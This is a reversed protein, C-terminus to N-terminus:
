WRLRAVFGKPGVAWATRNGALAVDNLNQTGEAIWRKGRLKMFAGVPGVVWMGPTASTEAPKSPIFAISSFFLSSPAAPGAIAQWTQGGDSTRIITPIPSNGPNAYDGGVAVGHHADRFAISFLGSSANPPRVPTEAVKWTEGADNSRLVRAVSAGGTVFWINKEGQLAICSNSAAFSGEGKLAPPFKQPPIQTWTVGGDVTRFLVFQGNVPDSLVVGRNRDWFAISDFFVGTTKPAFSLTWSQGGDSTRYIAALGKEANGTSMIVANQADFARIGRFDQNEAGAVHRVDWTKGRDVTRIVTGQTGSAWVVDDNVVSLGRFSAATGVNLQKWPRTPRSRAHIAAAVLFAALLAVIIASRKAM